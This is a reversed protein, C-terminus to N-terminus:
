MHSSVLWTIFCIPKVRLSDIWLYSRNTKRNERVCGIISECVSALTEDNSLEYAAGSTSGVEIDSQKEESIYVM